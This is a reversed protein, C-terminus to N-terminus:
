CLCDHQDNAALSRWTSWTTTSLCHFEFRDFSDHLYAVIDDLSFEHLGAGAQDNCFTFMGMLGEVTQVRRDARTYLKSGDSGFLAVHCGSCKLEHLPYGNQPDGPFLASVAVPFLVAISLLALRITSM